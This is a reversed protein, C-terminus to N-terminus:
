AAQYKFSSMQYKISVPQLYTAASHTINVGELHVGRAGDVVEVVHALLPAVVVATRLDPGAAGAGAGAGAGADKKTDTDADTDAAIISLTPGRDTGSDTDTATTTDLFWEMPADMEEYLGEVYWRSGKRPEDGYPFM